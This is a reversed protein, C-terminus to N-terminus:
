NATILELAPTGSPGLFEGYLYVSGFTATVLRGTEPAGSKEKVEGALALHSPSLGNKFGNLIRPALEGFNTFPSPLPMLGECAM